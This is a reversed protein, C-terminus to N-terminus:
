QVVQCKKVLVNMLQTDFEGQVTVEQGNALSILESKDSFFCQVSTGFYYEERTPNIIVFPTGVIDESINSVFGTLRVIQGDYKAEAALQNTDFEKVFDTIAVVVFEPETMEDSDQNRANNSSRTVTGNGTENSESSGGLAGLVMGILILGLIGSIIPHRMFWNRLDSQCKPCKKANAAIEEQCRPCSKLEKNQTM